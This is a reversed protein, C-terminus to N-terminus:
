ATPATPVHGDLFEFQDGLRFDSIQGEFSQGGWGPGGLAWGWERGGAGVFDFDTSQEDLVLHDNILVQLHDSAADLLVTINNSGDEKLHVDSLLFKKFGEDATAVQLSIGDELLTLGVKQHNWVLRGDGTDTGPAANAEDFDISFALKESKEYATIRGLTVFDQDGDLQVAKGSSTSVLHADDKLGLKPDDLALKFGTWDAALLNGSTASEPASDSVLSLTKPAALASNTPQYDFMQGKQFALFSDHAQQPTVAGRLFTLNDLLGPLNNGIPNGLHLDHGMLVTTGQGGKLGSMSAVEVGDVYLVAKGTVKSVSYTLQHWESDKLGLSGKTQLLISEGLGTTGRVTVGDTGVDIAATGSFQLVRGSSGEAGVNKKFALSITFEPNKAMDEVVEFKVASKSAGLKVAQGFDSAVLRVTGIATAAHPNDSIDKLGTEFTAELAVPTIAEVAKDYTYKTGNALTVTATATYTGAHSYVHSQSLGTGVTGDGFDWKITTGAPLAAAFAPGFLTFSHTSLALGSGDKEAIFGSFPGTPTFKTDTAGYGSLMNGPVAQLDGVSPNGNMADVLLAGIYNPALKDQAQVVINDLIKINNGALNSMVPGTIGAYINKDIVVNKTGPALFIRPADNADGESQLITNSRVILGNVDEVRIGQANGNHMINQEIVVSTFGKNNTNDDLYIGLVSVGNGQLFTNDRFVFNDSTGVQTPSTYFHVFDGHDGLGGFKWPTLDHFYNGELLVNDLDGGGVPCKRVNFIENNTIKLNDTSSVRIGSTFESVTNNDLTIGSCDALMIGNGIPFGNIGKETQTGAPANPDIGAIAPGGTVTSNRITINTSGDARFGASWEVTKADPVFNIDINDFTINGSAGVYVSAIKPPANPNQATIVVESSFKESQIRLDGFNGSGMEIRDGGVAKLIAANFEATNSVLFKTM